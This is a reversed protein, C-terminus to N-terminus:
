RFDTKDSFRHGVYRSRIEVGMRAEGGADAEALVVVLLDQEHGLASKAEVARAEFDDLAAVALASDAFDDGFELM